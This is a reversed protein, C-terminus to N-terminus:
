PGADISDVSNANMLIELLLIEIKYRQLLGLFFYKKGNAKSDYRLADGTTVLLTNGFHHRSAIAYSCSSFREWDPSYRMAFHSNRALIM